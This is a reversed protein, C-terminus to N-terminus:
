GKLLSYITLESCTQFGLSQDLHAAMPTAQLTGHTYGLSHAYNFRTKHIAEGIGKRRYEPLVALNYFGASSPHLYITGSGIANNNEYVVFHAFSEPQRELCSRYLDADNKNLGFCNAVPIIWDGLDCGDEVRRIEIGDPLHVLVEEDLSKVMVPVKELLVEGKVDRLDIQENCFDILWLSHPCPSQVLGTSSANEKVFVPNFLANSSGTSCIIFPEDDKVKDFSKSLTKWYSILNEYSLTQLKNMM